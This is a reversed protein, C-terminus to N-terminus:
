TIKRDTVIYYEEQLAAFTAVFCVIVAGYKPEIFNLSLPFVFLLLGTAKNVVSHVSVPKKNRVFGLVAGTIKILAIAGTWMWLWAPLPIHPLLKALSVAAFLFDAATDLEAGFPGTSNTKRAVAGDLMDSLGCILYVTYFPVSFVPLFIMPISGFIRIGTIFNAINKKRVSM